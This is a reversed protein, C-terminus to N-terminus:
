KAPQWLTNKAIARLVGVKTIGAFCSLQEIPWFGGFEDELEMLLKVFNFSDLGAELLDTDDAPSEETALAEAVLRNFAADFATERNDPM